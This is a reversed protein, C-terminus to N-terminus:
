RDVAQRRKRRPLHVACHELSYQIDIMHDTEQKKFHKFVDSLPSRAKLFAICQRTPLNTNELALLIDERMAFEYAHTLIDEPPLTILWDRYREQESAFKQYLINNLEINTM